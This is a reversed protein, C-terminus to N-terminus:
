SNATLKDVVGSTSLGGVRPVLHIRGGHKTVTPAEICEEGYEAGNVHVDPRVEELFAIPDAEDFVHVYDVCRLGLLLRARDEQGVIPRSPGKYGRVSADSNLGVVLVDGHRRAEELIHLHGAHLVDFAGNITVVRKGSAKLAASLGRLDERSVLRAADIAGLLEDPTVTATGLKGVVVGAARNAAEVADRLSVGAGLALALTAM